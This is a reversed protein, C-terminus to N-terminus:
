NLFYKEKEEKTLEANPGLIESWKDLIESLPSISIKGIKRNELLAILYNNDPTFVIKEIDNKCDIKFLCENNELMVIEIINSNICLPDYIYKGESLLLLYKGDSSFMTRRVKNPKSYKEICNEGELDWIECGSHYWVIAMTNGDPSYEISRIADSENHSNHICEGTKVSWLVVGGGTMHYNLHSYTVVVYKEDHSLETKLIRVEPEVYFTQICSKTEMSWLRIIRDKSITIFYNENSCFRIDRIDDNIDFVTDAHLSKKASYLKVTGNQEGVIIYEGASSYRVYMDEHCLTDINGTILSKM